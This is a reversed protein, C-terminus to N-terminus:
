AAAHAADDGATGCLQVLSFASAHATRLLSAPRAVRRARSRASGLPRRTPAAYAQYEPNSRLYDAEMEQQLVAEEAASLHRGQAGAPSSPGAGPSSGAGAGGQARAVDAYYSAAENAAALARARADM